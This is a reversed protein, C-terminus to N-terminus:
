FSSFNILTVYVISELTGKVMCLSIFVQLSSGLFPNPTDSSSYILYCGLLSYTVVYLLNSICIAYDFFTDQNAPDVRSNLSDRISWHLQRMHQVNTYPFRNKNRATNRHPFILELVSSSISFRRVNNEADRIEIDDTTQQSQHRRPLPLVQEENAQEVQPFENMPLQYSANMHSAQQLQILNMPPPPQARHLGPEYDYYDEPRRNSSHNYNFRREQQLYQSRNDVAQDRQLDRGELPLANGAAALDHGPQRIRQARVSSIVALNEPRQTGDNPPPIFSLDRFTDEIEM